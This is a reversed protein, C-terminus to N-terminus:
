NKTNVKYPKLNFEEAEVSIKYEMQPNLNVTNNGTNLEIDSIKKENQFSSVVGTETADDKINIILKGKDLRIDIPNPSVYGFYTLNKSLGWLKDNKYNLYYKKNPTVIKADKFKTGFSNAFINPVNPSTVTISDLNTNIARDKIIDSNFANEGIYEVNEPLYIRTSITNLFANDKITKLNKLNALYIYGDYLDNWFRMADPRDTITSGNEFTYNWQEESDLYLDIINALAYEGISTINKPLIISNYQRKKNLKKNNYSKDFAYPPLEGDPYEYYGNVTGNDGKYGRIEVNGHMRIHFLNPLSDRMFKFDEATLYTHHWTGDEYNQWDQIIIGTISRKWLEYDPELGHEYFKEYQNPNWFEKILTILSKHPYEEGALFLTGGFYPFDGYDFEENGKTNPNLGKTNVNDIKYTEFKVHSTQANALPFIFVGFFLILYQKRILNSLKIDKQILSIFFIVIMLACGMDVLERNDAYLNLSLLSLIFCLSIIHKM